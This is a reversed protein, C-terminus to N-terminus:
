KSFIVQKILSRITIPIWGIKPITFVTKGMVQEAIVPESDPNGNADGKTIFVKTNGEVNIKYVRHIIPISINTCKYQIIDGEKIADAPTDSIIVIDGVDLAPRMSGSYIVTPQVGFYGYSFFVLLLCVIAIPIWGTAPDKTKKRKKRTGPQTLEISNQILLFGIAPALTGIFATLTWDLNPLVPSLWEFIQLTGMYGIAAKAGGIYALYSAFLSMALLPIMSEGIFKVSAAPDTFSLLAYKVPSIKILMFLLAIAGIILTINRRPADGRKILYARSFEIGLLLTGVYILNITIGLPTHVYPSRGFGMLLGFIILLAIQFVGIFLGTEFPNRGIELRRIKKFSWINLGEQKAIIFAIIALTIWLIPKVVYSGITGSFAYPIVLHILIYIATILLLIVYWM